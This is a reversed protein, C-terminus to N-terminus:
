AEGNDLNTIQTISTQVTPIDMEKIDTRPKEGMKELALNRSFLGAAVNDRIEKNKELPSLNLADIKTKDINLSYKHTDTSIDKLYSREYGRIVKEATPIYADVYAVKLATAYNAFTSNEMDGVIISPLRVMSSLRRLEKAANEIMQMDSAPASITNVDIPAGTIHAKNMRTAGGVLSKFANDIALYDKTQLTMGENNAAASIIVKSGGNKFYSEGATEIQISTSLATQGAQLPSLGNKTKRGEVSPNTMKVHLMDEVSIPVQKGGDNLIYGTVESLISSSNTTNVVVLEPPLSIINDSLFGISDVRKYSYFEGNIVYYIMLEEWFEQLTQDKNPNFIYNYEDGQTIVETDGNSATRILSLPLSSAGISINKAIAYMASSTMYGLEIAQKDSIKKYNVDGGLPMFNYFNRNEQSGLNRFWSGFSM